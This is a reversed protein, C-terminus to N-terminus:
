VRLGTMVSAAAVPVIPPVVGQILLGRTLREGPILVAKTHSPKPNLTQPKPEPDMYVGVGLGNSEPGNGQTLM